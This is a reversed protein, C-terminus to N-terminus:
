CEDMTYGKWSTRLSLHSLLRPVKLLTPGLSTEGLHRTEWPLKVLSTSPSVQNFIDGMSVQNLGRKELSTAFGWRGLAVQKLAKSLSSMKKKDIIPLLHVNPFLILGQIM